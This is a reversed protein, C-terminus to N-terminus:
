FDLGLEIKAERKCQEAYANYVSFEEPKEYRQRLIALEEDISYKERIKEVVLTPYLRATTGNKKALKIKYAEM